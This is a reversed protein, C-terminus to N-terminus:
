REFMRGCIVYEEHYIKRSSKDSTFKGNEDRYPTLIKRSIKRKAAKIDTFGEDIMCQILHEANNIHVGKYETDGVVFFSMGGYNLKESCKSVAKQIDSYYRAVAKTKSSEGLEKELADVIECGVENLDDKDIEYENCNYLSGVSGKRFKRYDDTYDLWLSSLQHLDAYEYSTVYPPSSIIMDVKPMKNSEIFNETVICVNSKMKRYEETERVAKCFFKYQNSFRDWVDGTIKNPDVQPKISKTLWRSNSKLISSFLCFFADRYKKNNVECKIANKLKLLDNYDKEEHWYCLRENANEYADDEISGSRYNHYIKNYYKDLVSLRYNQSKTKAILTAVPNIDCGWFDIGHLKSELAVTGCGCFIDAVKRIIIGEAEAFEFAKKAIFAPFKAPYSHIKHMLLEETDGENWECDMQIQDFRNFSVSEMKYIEDDNIM